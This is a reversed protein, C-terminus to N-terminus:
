KVWRHDLIEAPIAEITGTDPVALLNPQVPTGTGVCKKLLSVHFVLHLRSKASLDLKYAVPRVRELIKFPGFFLAALKQNSRRMM